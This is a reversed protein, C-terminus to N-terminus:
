DIRYGPKDEIGFPLFPNAEALCKQAVPDHAWAGEVYGMDLEINGDPRITHATGVCRDMKTVYKALCIKNRLLIFRRAEYGEPTAIWVFYTGHQTAM